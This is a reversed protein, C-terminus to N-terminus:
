VTPLKEVFRAIIVPKGTSHDLLVIGVVRLRIPNTGTLDGLGSLGVFFTLPSAFIKVPEDFLLGTIGATNFMFTGATANTSGPVWAGELGQAHLWVRRTDLKPPTLSTDLLGGATIHQGRVLSDRNFLFTTFPMRVRSIMFRENGDFSLTAIQGAQVNAIDPLESRM